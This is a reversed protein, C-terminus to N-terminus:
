VLTAATVTGDILDLALEIRARVCTFAPTDRLTYSSAESERLEAVLDVFAFPDEGEFAVVFEQDDIGFSYGTHIVIQPYRHGIAFHAAMMRTREKQPLAYWARTKVFPYVFLYPKGLPGKQTRLAESGLHTHAAVYQSPRTVALYGHPRDSAAYLTTGALRSEFQQLEELSDAVSWLLLDADSRTGVLSYPHVRVPAAEDRIADALERKQASRESPPLARWEPRARLFLYRYLVQSV